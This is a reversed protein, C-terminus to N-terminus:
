HWFPDDRRRYIPATLQILLRQLSRGPFSVVITAFGDKNADGKELRNNGGHWVPVHNACKVFIRIFSDNSAGFNSMLGFM